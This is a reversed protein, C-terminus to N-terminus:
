RNQEVATEATAEEANVAAIFSEVADARPHVGRAQGDKLIQYCRKHNCEPGGTILGYQRASDISLLAHASDVLEQWLARSRRGRPPKFDADDDM